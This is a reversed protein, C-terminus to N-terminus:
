AEDIVQPIPSPIYVHWRFVRLNWSSKKSVVVVNM